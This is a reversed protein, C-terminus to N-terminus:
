DREGVTTKLMATDGQGATLDKLYIEQRPAPSFTKVHLVKQPQEISLKMLSLPYHAVGDKDRPWHHNEPGPYQPPLQVAVYRWGDFDIPASEGRWQRGTSDALVFTVRGWSSNGYVWVGIETPTGPIPIRQKCTLTSAFTGYTALGDIEKSIQTAHPTAKLVKNKGEFQEVTTFNFGGVRRPTSSPKASAPSDERQKEQVWDDLNSLSSLVASTGAPKDDFVPAGPLASKFPSSSVAYVPSSTLTIEVAGDVVKLATENAQNDILTVSSNGDFTLKVPRRGQPTWLAIVHSGDPRRFQLGYLSPTGLDLDRDFKAGDLVLTLTAMAVYSPKVNMEPMRNCFGAGGWMTFYYATGADGIIGFRIGPEEWALASLSHRVFYDAQTRGSLRGPGTAPYCSESCLYVPKDKYGYSDLLQRELWIDLNVASGHPPQSEPYGGGAELGAYDFLESPFKHRYFEERFEKEGNGLALKVHPFEKRMDQAAKTANDWLEQFQKAQEENTGQGLGDEHFMLAIPNPDQGVTANQQLAHRYGDAGKGLRATWGAVTPEPSQIVGYKMQEDATFGWMGYRFGAKVYLPGVQKADSSAFHGRGFQWTGFPSTDRHKRTDPLLLAMSTKRTVLLRGQGDSLTIALDYYGRRPVAIEMSVTETALPAVRGSTKATAAAGELPTALASLTFSQEEHAINTLQIRFTPKQPEVFANGPESSSVNMQLPSKEFTIAAIRVGSPLGLPLTHSGEVRVEKTLEVDLAPGFDQAISRSMPVRVDALPGASTQVVEVSKDSALGAKRPITAPFDFHDVLGRREPNGVSTTGYSGTRITLTATLAPDDDAVALVHAAVYDAAPIRLMPMRADFLIPAGGDYASFYATLGTKWEIWQAQRLSLQNDLGQPMRFPVGGVVIKRDSFAAAFSENVLPQLDICLMREDHLPALSVNRVKDGTNLLLRPPYQLASAVPMTGVFRGDFWVTMSNGDVDVLLSCWRDLWFREKIGKSLLTEAPTPPPKWSPNDKQMWNPKAPKENRWYEFPVPEGVKVLKTQNRTQFSFNLVHGQDDRDLRLVAMAAKPNKADTPDALLLLWDGGHANPKALQVQAEFRYPTSQAAGISLIASDEATLTGSADTAVRGSLPALNADAEAARAASHVTAWCALTLILVAFPSRPM